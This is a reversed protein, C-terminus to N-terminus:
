RLQAKDQQQRHHELAQEFEDCHCILQRMDKAQTSHATDQGMRLEIVRAGRLWGQPPGYGGWGSKRGYALRVGEKVGLYDNDHDHGSYVASIGAHKAVGLLGTDRVSCAVDELKRGRTPADWWVDQFWGLTDEAVCGWGFMLPPCTRDGSDLLWVRAAAGGDGAGAAACGAGHCTIPAHAPPMAPYVDLYYNSADSAEPPGQRTLSWVGGTRIDLDLIQRRTLEAEGDHNGLTVAYPLGAAHVPAILQRWRREFWGPGCDPARPDSPRCVWGSVMDGSFVVLDPREAALVTKQVASEGYHLDTLQLIKFTGDTRFRLKGAVFGNDGAAGGGEAGEEGPNNLGSQRDMRSGM